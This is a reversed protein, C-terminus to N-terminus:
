RSEDLITRIRVALEIPSFPKQLLIADPPLKGAPNGSIYFSKMCPRVSEAHQALEVGSGGPIMLDTVMLDIANVSDDLMARASSADGATLVRYGSTELIKAALGRISSDDEVLLITESGVALGLREATPESREEDEPIAPFYIQFTAGSGITSNVGIHGGCDQVIGYVTSLGLGTGKGVEKTTFFPEFVRAQTAEDMGVGTDAVEFLVYPGAPLDLVSNGRHLEVSSTRFELNGGGQMADRANVALNLIIQDIQGADAIVRPLAPQLISNLQIEDGLLRRLMKEMGLVSENLNLAVRHTVQQRSFTLLQRTLSAARATANGIEEVDERASSDPPFQASFLHVYGTIVTLLNNFDHAIGGALTGMAQLKQAQLFKKELARRDSVDRAIGQVAVPNGDQSVVRLTVELVP